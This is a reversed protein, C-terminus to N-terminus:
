EGVPGLHVDALEEPLEGTLRWWDLWLDVLNELAGLEDPIAGSLENGDLYM